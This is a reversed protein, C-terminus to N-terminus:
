DREARWAADRTPSVVGEGDCLECDPWPEGPHSPTAHPRCHPCPVPAHSPRPAPRKRTPKPKPVPRHRTVRYARLRKENLVRALFYAVASSTSAIATPPDAAPLDGV